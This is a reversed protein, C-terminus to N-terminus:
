EESPFALCMVCVWGVMAARPLKSLAFVCSALVKPGEEYGPKAGSIVLLPDSLVKDLWLHSVDDHFLKIIM